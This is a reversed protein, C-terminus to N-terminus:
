EKSRRKSIVYFDVAFLIILGKVVKQYNADVEILFLDDNRFNYCVLQEYVYSISIMNNKERLLWM